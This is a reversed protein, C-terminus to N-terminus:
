KVLPEIIDVQNFAILTKKHQGVCLLINIKENLKIQSGNPKWCVTTLEQPIVVNENVKCRSKKNLLMPKPAVKFTPPQMIRTFRARPRANQLSLSM